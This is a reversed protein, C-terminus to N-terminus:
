TLCDDIIISLISEIHNRPLYFRDRSLCANSHNHIIRFIKIITCDNSGILSKFDERSKREAESLVGFLGSLNLSKISCASTILNTVMVAM